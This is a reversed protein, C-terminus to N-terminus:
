ALLEAIAALDAKSKVGARLLTALQRRHDAHALAHRIVVKGVISAQQQEAAQQAEEAKQLEARLRDIRQQPTETMTAKPPRGRSKRAATTIAPAATPIDPEDTM